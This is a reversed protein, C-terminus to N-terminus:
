PRLAFAGAEIAHAVSPPDGRLCPEVIVSIPFGSCRSLHGRRLLLFGLRFVRTFRESWAPKILQRGIISPVV